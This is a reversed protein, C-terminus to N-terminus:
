IPPITRRRADRTAQVFVGKVSTTRRKAEGVNAIPAIRDSPRPARHITVRAGGPDAGLSKAIM